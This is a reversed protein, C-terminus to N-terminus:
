VKFAKFTDHMTDLMKKLQEKDKGTVEFNKEQLFRQIGQHTSKLEIHELRLMNTMETLSMALHQFQDENRISFDRTLDGNKVADIEKKMRFIPGAIKHSAILSISLVAVASFLSVILVTSLITPLIFDSTPKAIVKTNEIIVTTSNQSFLFMMVGILFSSMVVILCFKFIFRKQFANDVFMQKRKQERKM